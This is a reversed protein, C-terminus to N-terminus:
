ASESSVSVSRQDDRGHIEGISSYPTLKFAKHFDLEVRYLVAPLLFGFQQKDMEIGKFTALVTSVKLQDSCIHTPKSCKSSHPCPSCSTVSRLIWASHMWPATKSPDSSGLALVLCPTRTEAALHATITDTTILFRAGKLKERLESMAVIELDEVAFFQRLKEVEFPAALIKFNFLSFNRKLESVLSMWKHLSWNKKEDSTFIQIYVTNLASRNEPPALIPVKLELSRALLEIYHFQSPETSSFVNNMYRQAENDFARFSGNEFQLGKKVPCQIQDMLFGSLRNHTLNFVSEFRLSNLQTMFERLKEFPMLLSTRPQNILEQLLTRPFFHFTYEPYLNQLQEFEDNVLVHVEHKKRESELLPRQMVFDGARLLSIFLKKM